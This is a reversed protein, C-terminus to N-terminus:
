AIGSEAGDAPNQSDDDKKFKKSLEEILCLIVIGAVVLAIGIFTNTNLDPLHWDYGEVVPRGKSDFVPIGGNMMHIEDKWPWIFVLSGAVFGSLISMTQNWYKKLLWSLLRAFAIFGVACGLAVPLLIGLRFHAVADIMILKYNGLLILTYSGSIGPLLMDCIAIAGCMVLYFPNDNETAPTVLSFGVAALAGAIILLISVLNFKKISKAIYYVSAIILGFFFSWVFVGYNNKFLFEFLKSASVIAILEGLVLVLLFFLDTHKAFEKFKFRFLLKLAELDFSKLANIFREFIGALLAITGGSVGPVVNALGMSFGKFFLLVNKLM